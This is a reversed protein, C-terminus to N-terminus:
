DKPLLGMKQAEKICDEKIKLSHTFKESNPIQEIVVYGGHQNIWYLTQSIRKKSVCISSM